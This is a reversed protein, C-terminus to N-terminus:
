IFFASVKTLANKTCKPVHNIQQTGNVTLTYSTRGGAANYTYTNKVGSAENYEQLLRALDDYTYTTTGTDDTM